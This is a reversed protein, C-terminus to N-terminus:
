SKDLNHMCKEDERLIRSEWAQDKEDDMYQKAEEFTNFRMVQERGDQTRVTVVYEERIEIEEVQRMNTFVYKYTKYDDDSM